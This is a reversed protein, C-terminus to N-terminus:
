TNRRDEEGGLLIFIFYFSVKGEENKLLGIRNLLLKLNEEAEKRKLKSQALKWHLTADDDDEHPNL